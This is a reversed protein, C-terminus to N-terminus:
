HKMPRSLTWHQCSAAKQWVRSWSPTNTPAKYNSHENKVHRRYNVKYPTQCECDTRQLMLRDVPLLTTAVLNMEITDFGM